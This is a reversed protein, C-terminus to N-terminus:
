GEVAVRYGRELAGLKFPVVQLWILFQDLLRCRRVFLVLEVLLMMLVQVQALPRALIVQSSRQKLWKM